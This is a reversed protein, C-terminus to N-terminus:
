KRRKIRHAKEMENLFDMLKYLALGFRNFSKLAIREESNKPRQEMRWPQEFLDIGSDLTGEDILDSAEQAEREIIESSVGQTASKRVQVAASLIKTLKRKIKRASYALTDNNLDKAIQNLDFLSIQYILQDIRNAM